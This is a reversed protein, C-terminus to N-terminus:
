QKAPQNALRRGGLHIRVADESYHDLISATHLWRMGMPAASQKGDVFFCNIYRQTTHVKCGGGEWAGKM